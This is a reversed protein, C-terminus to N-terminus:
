CVVYLVDREAGKLPVFSLFLNGPSRRKWRNENTQNSSNFMHETLRVITLQRTKDWTPSRPWCIYVLLFHVPEDPCLKLLLCKELLVAFSKNNGAVVHFRAAKKTQYRFLNRLTKPNQCTTPCFWITSSPVPQQLVNIVQKKHTKIIKWFISFHFDNIEARSHFLLTQLSVWAKDSVNITIVGSSINTRALLKSIFIILVIENKRGQFANFVCHLQRFSDGVGWRERELELLSSWASDVSWKAWTGGTLSTCIILLGTDIRRASPETWLQHQLQPYLTFYTAIPKCLSVNNRQLLSPPTSCDSEQSSLEEWRQSQATWNKM